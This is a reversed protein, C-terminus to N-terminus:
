GELRIEIDRDGAELGGLDIQNDSVCAAIVWVGSIGDWLDVARDGGYRLRAIAPSDSIM